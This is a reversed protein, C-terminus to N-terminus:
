TAAEGTELAPLTGSPDWPLSVPAPQPFSDAEAFAQLTREAADRVIQSRDLIVNRLAQRSAASPSQILAEATAARIVHDEDYLQDIVLSEVESVATMAVAMQIARIRRVRIPSKLENRLGELANLDVRNVIHGTEALTEDDLTGFTALFREFTFEALSERAAERVAEHPSDILDLLTTMAGRTGRERLQRVATARVIPDDDELARIVCASAQEGRFETLANAAERRGEEAGHSLLFDVVEFVRLRNMGSAMILHIAGRQEEGNLASLLNMDDRLWGFSEIRKLNNQATKPVEDTFRKLMHRVFSVDKRRALIGYMVSPTRPDDLSDLILRMVGLRHSHSLLHILTVYAKHHPRELLHHLGANTHGALLLFAEVIEQRQHHDFRGVSQELAAVAHTHVVHPDRRNQYDRPAALADCLADALLLLTEASHEAQPNANDEAATILAPIADYEALTLVADCANRHLQEEPGLLADRIASSLRGSSDAVIKKWRKSLTHWRGLLERQGTVSRRALLARLAGVQVERDPADLAGLLLRVAAENQTKALVSLTVDLGDAM